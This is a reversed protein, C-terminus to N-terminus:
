VLFSRARTQWGNIFIKQSPDKEVISRYFNLRREVLKNIFLRKHAAVVAQSAAITKDGVIGDAQGVHISDLFEALELQLMKIARSCGHNVAMDFVLPQIAMPLKNIEPKIYYLSEYIDAATAKTMAKVDDVSCQKGLYNSLTARTIGYNTAGGKDEVRNVFGGERKLLDAIMQEIPSSM